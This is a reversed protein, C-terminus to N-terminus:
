RRHFYALISLACAGTLGHCCDRRVRRHHRAKLDLSTCAIFITAHQSSTPSTTSTPTHATSTNQWTPPKYSPGDCLPGRYIMTLPQTNPLRPVPSLSRCCVMYPFNCYSMRLVDPFDMDFYHKNFTQGGEVLIPVNPRVPHYIFAYNFNSM